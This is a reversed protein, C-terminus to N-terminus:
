VCRVERVDVIRSGAHWMFAQFVAVARKLVGDIWSVGVCGVLLCKQMVDGRGVRGWGSM